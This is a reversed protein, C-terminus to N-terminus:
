EHPWKGKKWNSYLSGKKRLTAPTEADCPRKTPEQLAARAENGAIALTEASDNSDCPHKASEQPAVRAKPIIGLDLCLELPSAIPGATRPTVSM